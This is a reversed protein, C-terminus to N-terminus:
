ESTESEKRVIKYLSMPETEFEIKAGNQKFEVPPGSTTMHGSFYEGISGLNVVEILTWDPPLHVV